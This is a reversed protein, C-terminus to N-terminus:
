QIGREKLGVLKSCKILRNGNQAVYNVQNNENNAYNM